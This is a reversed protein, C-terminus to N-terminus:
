PLADAVVKLAALHANVRTDLDRASPAEVTYVDPCLGEGLYLAEAWGGGLDEPKVTGPRSSILGRDAPRDEIVPALDLGCIPEAADLIARGLGPKGREVHEYVYYGASEWDEHLCVALDYRLGLKKLCALHARVHPSSLAIYDRNLDGYQPHERTNARLGEPNLLPFAVVGARAPLLNKEVAALLALPGAPEDGHIGTSLYLWPAGPAPARVAFPLSLGEEQGFTGTRFGAGTAAPEWSKEFATLNLATGTYAM